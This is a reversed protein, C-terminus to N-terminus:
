RRRVRHRINGGLFGGLRTEIDVAEVGGIGGLAPDHGFIMQVDAASRRLEDRELLRLPTREANLPELARLSLVAVIRGALLGSSPMLAVAHRIATHNWLHYEIEGLEIRNGRVKVQNDKRKVFSVSSDLNYRGLDGTLYMRRGSRGNRTAFVPDVVFAAATKEPENLYGRALLPGEILIEGVSGVPVLRNYDAPDVLWMFAGVQAGFNAPDADASVGVNCAMAICCEAPGYILSLCTHDALTEVTEKRVREGGLAIFDVGEVDQPTLLSAVTPTLCAWNARYKKLAGGLDNMREFESPVCVTGGRMLTTFLDMISIDFMYASFQLVRSDKGVRMAEGHTRSSSALADHELVIGKPKGTSGSTFVVFAANQPQVEPAITAESPLGVGSSPMSSFTERNVVVVHDVVDAFRTAYQTSAVLVRAGTSRVIESLRNQPHSPDLAVCAGGAKIVALMTVVHWGSKEFCLPVLVEPGVSHGRLEWALCDSLHGLRDEVIHHVCRDLKPSPEANWRQVQQQNLTDLLEVDGLRKNADGLIDLLIAKIADAVFRAMEDSVAATQYNFGLGLSGHGVEVNLSCVYETPDYISMPEWNVPSSADKPSARRTVSMSTNFLRSGALPLEHQIDILPAHQHPLGDAYEEKIRKLLSQLSQDRDLMVRSVLTNIMPGCIQQADEGMDIDRGSTMYGFCVDDSGTYLGIVIAWILQFVNSLTIDNDICLREVDSSLEDLPMVITRNSNAVKSGYQQLYPFLCPTINELYGKWYDIQRRVDFGRLFDVYAEYGAISSGHRPANNTDQYATVLDNMVITWSHADVIAHNVLLCAYVGANEDRLFALGHPSDFSHYTESRWTRLFLVPDSVGEGVLSVNPAGDRVVVQDFFHDGESEIFRTRFIPHRQVVRAWAQALRHMDLESGDAGSIRAILRTVYQEADKQQSILIGQQMPTCPYLDEVDGPAVSDGLRQVTAELQSQLLNSRPFDVVTLLAPLQQTVMIMHKMTEAIDHIWTQIKEKKETKKHFSTHIALEGDIIMASIEFLGLRPLSPDNNILAEDGYRIPEFISESSEFQQQLGFYNFVLEMTYPNMDFTTDRPPGYRRAFEIRGREAGSKRAIRVLKLADVAATAESLDVTVPTITTFWGVTRSVDEDSHGAERGHQESFASPVPRDPFNKKFALLVSVLIMDVVEVNAVTAAVALMDRTTQPCLNVMVYEVSGYCNPESGMGWYELDSTYQMPKEQPRGLLSAEQREVWAPFSMSAPAITRGLLLDQLDGAVIRWSVLDVVLHHCILSLYRGNPATVLTAVFLPGAQFNTARQRRANIAFVEDMSPKKLLLSQNFHNMGDGAYGFHLRQIPSLGFAVDTFHDPKSVAVDRLVPVMKTSLATLSTSQLVDRVSLRFGLALCRSTLQMASISDGGAAIFSSRLNVLEAPKNLLGSIAAILVNEEASASTSDINPRGVIEAYVDLSVSSLWRDLLKRDLKGSSLSPLKEVVIWYSPVMYPALRRRAEDSLREVLASAGENRTTHIVVPPASEPEALVPSPSIVAVIADKFPGRRPLLVAASASMSYEIESLEVRQGRLKVQSDKRGMFSLTGDANLRVLDGTLYFRTSTDKAWDLASVFSDATKEADNLYGRSLIPGSMVLEGIGGIPTLRNPNTPEVVSATSGIAYGINAHDITDTTFELMTSFVTCETPGYAIILRTASAWAETVDSAVPEGGIVITKLSPVQHPQLTRVLSPTFFAWSVQFADMAAALGDTRDHDSPICVCGGARLTCFIEAICGDFTYTTNQLVRSDSTFHMAKMVREMSSCLAVHQIVVGKPQGTSGSTFIAYADDQPSVQPLVKKQDPFNIQSVIRDPSLVFLSPGLSSCVSQTEETAIVVRSSSRTLINALRDQPHSPDLPIFACGAKLVALM